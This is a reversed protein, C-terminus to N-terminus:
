GIRRQDIHMQKHCSKCLWLVELLKSYDDHHAEVPSSGCVECPRRMLNGCFIARNVANAAAIRQPKQQRYAKSYERRKKRVISINRAQYDRTAKIQCIKCIGAHGDSRRSARHFADFSKTQCCKPCYKM